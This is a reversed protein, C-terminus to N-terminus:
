HSAKSLADTVADSFASSSETAGSIFGADPTQKAVILEPLNGLVSCSYRTLCQAVETAVIQGGQILVSAQIDGHRCSGWGLYVGDKYGAQSTAPPAAAEEKTNSQTAPAPSPNVPVPAPSSGDGVQARSSEPQSRASSAKPAPHTGPAAPPRSRGSPEAAESIPAATAATPTRAAHTPPKSRDAHGAFKEAASSTRHYGAIYVAVIAASSLAVLNNSIKENPASRPKGEADVRPRVLASALVVAGAIALLFIALVARRGWAPHSGALAAASLILVAATGYRLPRGNKPFEM